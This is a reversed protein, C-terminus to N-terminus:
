LLDGKGLLVSPQGDVHLRVVPSTLTFPCGTIRAPREAHSWTLRGLLHLGPPVLDRHTILIIVAVAGLYAADIFYRLSPVRGGLSGFVGPGIMAFILYVALVTTVLLVLVALFGIGSVYSQGVRLSPSTPEPAARVLELGRRLHVVLLALSILTILGGLTATRAVSDGIFHSGAGPYRPHHGILQVLASVVLYSGIVSSLLTLFSVAFFYVSQPRRGSRDPDARNAIIVILLLGVVALVVVVSLVDALVGLASPGSQIVTVGGSTSSQGYTGTGNQLIPITTPTTTTGLLASIM